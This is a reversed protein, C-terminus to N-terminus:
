SKIHSYKLTQFVFSHLPISKNDVKNALSHNMSPYVNEYKYIILVPKM